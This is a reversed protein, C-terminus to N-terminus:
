RILNIRGVMSRYEPESIRGSIALAHIRKQLSQSVIEEHRQREQDTMQRPGARAIIVAGAPPPAPGTLKTAWEPTAAPSRQEWATLDRRTAAGAIAFDSPTAKRWGLARLIAAIEDFWALKKSQVAAEQPSLEAQGLSRRANRTAETVPGVGGFPHYDSYTDGRGRLNAVLGATGSLGTVEIRESGERFFYENKLFAYFADAFEPDILRKRLEADSALDAELSPQDGATPPIYTPQEGPIFAVSDTQIDITGHVWRRPENAARYRWVHPGVADVLSKDQLRADTVYVPEGQFRRVLANGHRTSWRNNGSWRRGASTAAGPTSGDPKIWRGPPDAGPPLLPFTADLHARHEGANMEQAMASNTAIVICCAALAHRLYVTVGGEEEGRDAQSQDPV